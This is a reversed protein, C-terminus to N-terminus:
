FIKPGLALKVFVYFFLFFFVPNYILLVTVFVYFLMVPAQLGYDTLFQRNEGLNARRMQQYASLPDM